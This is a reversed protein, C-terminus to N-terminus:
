KEQADPEETLMQNLESYHQHIKAIFLHAPARGLTARKENDNRQTELM